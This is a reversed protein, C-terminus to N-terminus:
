FLMRAKTKLQGCLGMNVYALNLLLAQKTLKTNIFNAKETKILLNNTKCVDM